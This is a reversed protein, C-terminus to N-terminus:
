SYALAPLALPYGSELLVALWYGVVASRAAALWYVLVRVAASQAEVVGAASRAEVVGAVKSYQVL